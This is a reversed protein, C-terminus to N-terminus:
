SQQSTAAAWRCWSAWVSILGAAPHRRRHGDDAGQGAKYFDTSSGRKAQLQQNLAM